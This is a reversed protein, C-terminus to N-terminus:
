GTMVADNGFAFILAMYQGALIAGVTVHGAVKFSGSYIMRLYSRGHKTSYTMAITRGTFWFGM